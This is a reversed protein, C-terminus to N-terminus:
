DKLEMLIQEVHFVWTLGEMIYGELGKSRIRRPAANELSVHDGLHAAKATFPCMLVPIVWEQLQLIPFCSNWTKERKFTGLFSKYYLAWSIERKKVNWFESPIWVTLLPGHIEHEQGHFVHIEHKERRSLCSNVTRAGRSVHFEHKQGLFVYIEHKKATLFMFIM